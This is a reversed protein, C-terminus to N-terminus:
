IKKQALDYHPMIDQTRRDKVYLYRSLSACDIRHRLIWLLCHHYIHEPFERAENKIITLYLLIWLLVRGKLDGPGLCFPQLKQLSCLLSPFFWPLGCGRQHWEESSCGPWCRCFCFCFRTETGHPCPPVFAEPLLFHCKSGVGSVCIQMVAGTWFPRSGPFFRPCLLM